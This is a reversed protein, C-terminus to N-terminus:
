NLFKIYNGLARLNFNDITQLLKERISHSIMRKLTDLYEIVGIATVGRSIQRQGDALCLLLGEEPKADAFLAVYRTLDSALSASPTRSLKIEVPLPRLGSGEIILDVELGNNTRLYPSRPHQGLKAYCKVTESVCYNEFLAGAMPGQLFQEPERIGTLHCLLRTDIFYVKPTKTTTALQPYSGTQCAPMPSSISSTRLRYRKDSRMWPLLSFIWCRLGIQRPIGLNLIMNFQQSGTFVFRSNRGRDQDVRMEIYSLIGPALQIEDIICREGLSDLFFVPDNPAQERKWLM